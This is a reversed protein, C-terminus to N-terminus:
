MQTSSEGKGKGVHLVNYKLWVQADSISSPISSGSTIIPTITKNEFFSSKTTSVEKLDGHQILDPTTEENNNVTTNM